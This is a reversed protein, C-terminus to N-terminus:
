LDSVLGEHDDVRLDGKFWLVVPGNLQSLDRALQSVPRHLEAASATAAPAATAATVVAPRTAPRSAALPRPAAALPRGDCMGLIFSSGATPQSPVWLCCVITALLSRMTVVIKPMMIIRQM